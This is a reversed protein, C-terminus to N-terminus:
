GDPSALRQTTVYVRARLDVRDYLDIIDASTMRVCGQSSPRGIRSEQNTGHIYIYRGMTNRNRSETGDLWLIRTLVLDEEGGDLPSMEGTARRARFVTGPRAGDGVKRAVEMWGLPTRNSDARNGVGYRSTSVPYVRILQNDQYLALAQDSISVVLLDRTNPGPGGCGALLVACALM